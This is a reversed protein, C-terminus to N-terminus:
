EGKLERLEGYKAVWVRALRRPSIIWLRKKFIKGISGLWMVVDSCYRKKDNQLYPALLFFGTFLGLYDYKKGTEMHAFLLMDMYSDHSVEVEGIMWREPHKLVKSAPAFRVGEADGRTTSSFCQGLFEDTLKDTYWGNAEQFLGDEDPFWMSVHRYNFKLSKWDFRVLALIGTWIVIGQGIAQAKVCRWFGKKISPGINKTFVIRIRM